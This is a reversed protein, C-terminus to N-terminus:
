GKEPGSSAWLETSRETVALGRCMRILPRQVTLGQAQALAGATMNGLPIDVFVSQGAYRHWADALLLPGAEPTALCPGIQLARTGSRVTVFGLVSGTREVVRLAEPREAFLRLLLKRRDTGTVARDLQLLRDFQEPQATAVDLVPDAPLLTGAYRALPYEVSFGLKEYLPQGLPTADLRVSRVGQQDLYALAHQMLARGIGQGRVAADVLVMAIWAVPGFLCTTTTGVSLGDREALFCGEPELALFRQWDAETQNWGAQQKLRMGVPLDALTLPRIHLM